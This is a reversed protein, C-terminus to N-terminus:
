YSYQTPHAKLEQGFNRAKDTYVPDLVVGRDISFQVFIELKESASQASGWGKGPHIVIHHRAFESVTMAAGSDFNVPWISGMEMAM